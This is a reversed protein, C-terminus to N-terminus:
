IIPDPVNNRRQGRTRSNKTEHDRLQENTLRHDSTSKPLDNPSPPNVFMACTDDITKFTARSTDLDDSRKQRRREAVDKFVREMADASYKPWPVIGINRQSLPRPKGFIHHGMNEYEDLCDVVTMRFRSLMIAILSCRM